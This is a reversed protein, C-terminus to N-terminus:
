GWKKTEVCYLTWESAKSRQGRATALEGVSKYVVAFSLSINQSSQCCGFKPYLDASTVIGAKAIM